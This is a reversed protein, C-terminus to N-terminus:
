NLGIEREIARRIISRGSGSANLFRDETFDLSGAPDLITKFHDVSIVKQEYAEGALKRLIDFVAQVGVTKRIFSQPEADAWFVQNAAILYNLVMTYIVKDQGNIYAERLPSRDRRREELEVRPIQRPTQLHNADAKPNSTILRAIGEVIVATSVRWESGETMEKLKADKKPSITIKGRLPSQEESGLRRTLFVALKDPSWFRPEEDSINYGFLEYTLSKDVRKQNSNITAFIQAQYPKPLDLYIACIMEMDLREVVEAKTFGFLRHQGDVVAALQDETPIVLEYCGDDGEEIRWRRDIATGDGANTGAVADDSDESISEPDDEILGDELRSNAALIISNPFAADDRDIYRGIEQLRKERQERQNGGLSYPREPDGTHEATLVDSFCVDLLLGAPLSAVWCDALEQRVRLAKTRYPFQM